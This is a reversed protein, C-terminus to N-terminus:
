AAGSVSSGSAQPTELIALSGAQLTEGDACVQVSLRGPKKIELFRLNLTAAAVLRKGEPSVVDHGKPDPRPMAAIDADMVGLAEGDLLAQISIHRVDTDWPMVVFVAACLQPLVVPFRSVCMDPGYAGVYTVKGSIEHRIDDCFLAHAYLVANSM